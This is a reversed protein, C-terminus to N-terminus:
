HAGSMKYFYEEGSNIFGFKIVETPHFKELFDNKSIIESLIKRHGDRRGFITYVITTDQCGPTSKYGVLKFPYNNKSIAFTLLASIDDTTTKNYADSILRENTPLSSPFIDHTSALMVEKVKKFKELKENEPLKIIIDNFALGGLKLTDKPSFGSILEKNLFLSSLLEIYHSKKGMLKFIILQEDNKLILKEGLLKCPYFNKKFSFKLYYLYNIFENCKFIVRKIGFM